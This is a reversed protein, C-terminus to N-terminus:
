HYQRKLVWEWVEGDQEHGVLGVLEFGNKELVKTHAGMSPPTQAAITLTRDKNLGMEVLQRTMQTAVGRGEFEPFTFCAIEVRGDEPASKFACTGVCSGNLVALYGLWPEQYGVNKYMQATSSLVEDVIEEHSVGAVKGDKEIKVLKLQGM